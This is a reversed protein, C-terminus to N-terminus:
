LGRLALLIITASLASIGFFIQAQFNPRTAAVAMIRRFAAADRNKKNEM